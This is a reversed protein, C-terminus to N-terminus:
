KVVYFTVTVSASASSTILSFTKVSGDPLLANISRSSPNLESTTASFTGGAPVAATAGTFDVFVSAGPQYSFSVIYRSANQPVTVTDAAGNVLTASFSLSSPYPAFANYGQDDRGFHLENSM